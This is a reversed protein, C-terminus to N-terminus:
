LSSWIFSCAYNSKNISFNSSRNKKPNINYTYLDPEVFVPKAGVNSVALATAIYTNSPVIVEDGEKIDLAKLSLQLADLGNSVGVAFKTQNFEAYATEFASVKNGLVYWYSDYVKEFADMMESKIESHMPAFNLFPINM